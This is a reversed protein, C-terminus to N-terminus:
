ERIHNRRADCRGVEADLLRLRAIQHRPCVTRRNLLYRPTGAEVSADAPGRSGEPESGEETDLHFNPGVFTYALFQSVSALPTYSHSCLGSGLPYSRASLLHSLLGVQFFTPLPMTRVSLCLRCDRSEQAELM